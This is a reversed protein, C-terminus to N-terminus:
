GTKLNRTQVIVSWMALTSILASAVLGFVLLTVTAFPASSVTVFVAAILLFWGSILFNKMM